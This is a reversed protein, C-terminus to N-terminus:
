AARRPEILGLALFRKTGDDSRIPNAVMFRLKRRLYELDRCGRSRRVLTEWNNNLAEVRGTSPRHDALALIEKEHYRLSDHLRRMAPNDRRATCRYVRALGARMEAPDTSRLVERLTEVAQYARALRGNLRFLTRLETRQREDANAWSRLVLWRKGRGVARLEKGARFFTQRRLEDMADGARKMVHFPDHAIAAHKLQEDWRVANYYAQHMDMVFCRIRKKQDASLGDLFTKLTEASRGPGIWLPEGTALNSVITVFKEPRGHRRGLYKEDVGALELEQRAQTAERRAIAAGEARRVTSWSLGYQAAVHLTPMSAAQLALHQQLRKTQRQKPEAWALFEVGTADCAGCRLREPAYEVVAQRGFVPLDQWRRVQGAAHRKGCIATCGGCRGGWRREVELVVLVEPPLEYGAVPEVGGGDSGEFRVKRVRWGRYGWLQTLIEQRQGM